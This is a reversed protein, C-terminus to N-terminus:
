NGRPGCEKWLQGSVLRYRPLCQYVVKRTLLSKKDEYWTTNVVDPPRGCEVEPFPM